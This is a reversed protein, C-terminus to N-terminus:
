PMPMDAKQALERVIAFYEPMQQEDAPVAHAARIALKDSNWYSFGVFALGLSLGVLMGRKGGFLGGLVIMLGGIGALLVATKAYNKM